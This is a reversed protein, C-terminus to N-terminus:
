QGFERRLIELRAAAVSNGKAAEAEYAAILEAPRLPAAKVPEPRRQAAANRLEAAIARAREVASEREGQPVPEIRPVPLLNAGGANTIARSRADDKWAAAFVAEIEAISPWFEATRCLDRQRETTLAAAPVRLAFALAGCRGRFDDPSPMNRVAAAVPRLFRAWDDQTAVGTM